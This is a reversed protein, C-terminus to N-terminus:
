RAACSPASSPLGSLSTGSQHGASGVHHDWLPPLWAAPLFLLKLLRMAPSCLSCSSYLMCVTADQGRVSSKFCTYLSLLALIVYQLGLTRDRVSCPRKDRPLSKLVISGLADGPIGFKLARCQEELMIGQILFSTYPQGTTVCGTCYEEWALSYIVCIEM